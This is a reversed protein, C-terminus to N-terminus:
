ANVSNGEEFVIQVSTWEPSKFFFLLSFFFAVFAEYKKPRFNWKSHNSPIVHGSIQLFFFPMKELNYLRLYKLHNQFTKNHFLFFLVCVQKEELFRTLYELVYFIMYCIQSLQQLSLYILKITNMKLTKKWHAM